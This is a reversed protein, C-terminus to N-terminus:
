CRRMCGASSKRRACTPSASPWTTPWSSCCRVEDASIHLVEPAYLYFLGFTRDATACRCAPVGHFGNALAARDVRAFSPDQAVDEVIVAEGSRITRGAPGPRSPSDADVLSMAAQDFEAGSAGARVRSSAASPTTRRWASGPWATAASTVTIRCIECCAPRGFHRPDPERQLREAHAPRPERQGARARRAPPETVDNAM